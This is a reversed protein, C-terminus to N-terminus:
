TSSFHPRITCAMCARIALLKAVCAAMGARDLPAKGSDEAAIPILEDRRNRILPGYNDSTALRIEHSGSRKRLASNGM